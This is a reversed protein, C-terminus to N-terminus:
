ESVEEKERFRTIKKIESFSVPTEGDVRDNIILSNDSIETILGNFFDFRDDLKIHVTIKNEFYFQAKEKNGQITTENLM